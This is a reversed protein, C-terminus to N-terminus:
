MRLTRGDATLRRAVQGANLEADVDLAARVM